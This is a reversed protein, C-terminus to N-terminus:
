SYGGVNIFTCCYSFKYAIYFNPIKKEIGLYSFDLKSDKFKLKPGPSIIETIPGFPDPFDVRIFTKAETRSKVRPLMM